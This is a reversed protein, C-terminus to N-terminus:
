PPQTLWYKIAKEKDWGPPIVTPNPHFFTCIEEDNPTSWTVEVTEDHRCTNKGTFFEDRIDQPGLVRFFLLEAYYVKVTGDPWKNFIDHYAHNVIGELERYVQLETGRLKVSESIQSIVRKETAEPSDYIQKQMEEVDILGFELLGGWHAIDEIDAPRFLMERYMDDIIKINEDPLMGVIKDPSFRSSLMAVATQLGEDSELLQKKLETKTIVGSELLPSWHEFALNDAPRLLIERYVEDVIKDYGSDFGASYSVFSSNVTNMAHSFQDKPFFYFPSLLGHLKLQIKTSLKTSSEDGRFIQTIKTGEADGSMIEVTHREYPIITHKALLEVKIGQNIMTEEALIVNPEQEIIVVSLVNKPLITPYNEVDAMTNFLVEKGINYEGEIEVENLKPHAFQLTPRVWDKDDTPEYTLGGSGWLAIAFGDVDEVASTTSFYGPTECQVKTYFDECGFTSDIYIFSAPIAAALFIYFCVIWKNTKNMSLFKSNKTGKIKEV